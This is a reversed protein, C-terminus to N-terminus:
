RTLAAGEGREQRLTLYESIMMAQHDSHDFFDMLDRKWGCACNGRRRYRHLRLTDAVQDRVDGFMEDM